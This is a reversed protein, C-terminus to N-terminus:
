ESGNCASSAEVISMGSEEVTEDCPMVDGCAAAELSNETDPEDETLPCADVPLRISFVSGTGLESQCSIDGGLMGVLRKTIALGLGTGGYKRTTESDAQTFAGFVHKQKDQAIGIGTDEVDIRVISRDSETALSVTVRVHGQETFKIANGIINFLCQRLRTPDSVILDPVDEGCLVTFDLNQKRCQEGFTHELDQLLDRPACQINEVELKNAEIKSLDLIDNILELLHESSQQIVGIFKHQRPTMSEDMLVDSFGVITNMPTRIEHSMNSLFQSKAVNAAIAEDALVRACEAAKELDVKAQEAQDRAEKIHREQECRLTIDQMSVLIQLDGQAQIPIVSILLWLHSRTKKDPRDLEVELGHVPEHTDLVGFVATFIKCTQHCDCQVCDRAPASPTKECGMATSLPQNLLDSAKSGVIRGLAQNAKRVTLSEDLLMMGVPSAGFISKLNKRENDMAQDMKRHCEDIERLPKAILRFLYPCLVVMGLIVPDLLIKWAEAYSFADGLAHIATRALIFLVGAVVAIKFAKSKRSERGGLSQM